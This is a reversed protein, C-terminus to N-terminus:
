LDRVRVNRFRVTGAGYQLAFPGSAFLNNTTDVVQMGNMTVILRMGEARILLTNWRGGANIQASPSAYHVIGGTRYTQDPRTDYINAEYCNRDAIVAPNACRFFVGSNAPEDVWVELSLEFNTYPRPSVLFGSGSTATVAGDGVRWNANGVIQWGNLSTGDFLTTWGDAQAASRAPSLVAGVALGILLDRTRIM